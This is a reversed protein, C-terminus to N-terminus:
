EFIYIMYHSTFGNCLPLIGYGFYDSHGNKQKDTLNKEFLSRKTKEM